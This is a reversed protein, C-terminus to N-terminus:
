ESTDEEIVFYAVFVLSSTPDFGKDIKDKLFDWNAAEARFDTSQVLREFKDRVETCSRRSYESWPEGNARESSDASLWYMECTGDPLRFQFQGGICAFGHEPAITIANAFCEPAWGYENGLLTAGALLAAPLNDPGSDLM